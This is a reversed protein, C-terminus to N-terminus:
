LYKKIYIIKKEDSYVLTEWNHEYFKLIEIHKDVNLNNYIAFITSPLCIPDGMACTIVTRAKIRTCLNLNDFYSLNKFMEEEREPYKRLISAFEFKLIGKYEENESM